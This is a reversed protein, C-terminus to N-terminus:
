NISYYKTIKVSRDTSVNKIQAPQKMYFPVIEGFQINIGIGRKEEEARQHLVFKKIAKKIKSNKSVYKGWAARLKVM